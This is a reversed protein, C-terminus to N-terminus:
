CAVHVREDPQIGQVAAIVWHVLKAVASMHAERLTRQMSAPRPLCAVRHGSWRALLFFAKNCSLFTLGYQLSVNTCGRRMLACTAINIFRFRM